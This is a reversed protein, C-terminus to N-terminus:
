NAANQAQCVTCHACVKKCIDKLQPIVLPAQLSQRLNTVGAHLTTTKHWESVLREYMDMPVLLRGAKFIKDGHVIVDKPWRDDEGEGRDLASTIVDFLGGFHPCKASAPGWDQTVVDNDATFFPPISPVSPRAIPPVFAAVSRIMHATPARELSNDKLFSRPAHGSPEPGTHPFLVPPLYGKQADQRYPPTPAPAKGKPDM